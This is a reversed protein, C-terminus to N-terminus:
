PGGCRINSTVMYEVMAQQNSSIDPV